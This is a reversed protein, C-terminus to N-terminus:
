KELNEILSERLRTKLENTNVAQNETDSIVFWDEAKEGVTTIRADHLRIKCNRLACGIRSLLGPSDKTTIHLESRHENLQVFQIETPTEFCRMRRNLFNNPQMPQVEERLMQERITDCILQSKEKNISQHDERNLFYMLVLTMGDNSAFIRAEMIDQKLKDLAHTIHAFLYDRDPMYMMLESAGRASKARVKILTQTKDAQYLEQTIRAVEQPSQRSFFASDAMSDWFRQYDAAKIERKSLHEKAKEQTQLAKMAKNKPINSTLELAKYTEHYLELFLSNKWDNWVDESTACVDAVTLLYLHNLHNQDGILKAFENIIQPDSLDKRQAVHSFELHHRVLWEIMEQDKKPLNHQKAFEAADIAGLVEHAGSRGKAIDHFLGALFLVEPRCIQKSIQHATPFEYAYEEVFFRRLNRIVLITHDDVTYAHFINFQMLGSIKKFVPLYSDLIGYSHMRRVSANVGSPQRFIEIFLARNIPDARFSDNIFHLHDRISRIANSRLGKIEPLNALAVFVELLATPNIEFVAPHTIDLYDNRICFRNNIPIIHNKGDEFLTERFHQLLIENLKAVSQVNRYYGSMFQEVAMKEPNDEYGFLEAIQQQYDFQLRDERRRRLHQLAFRIRNLYKNAAEMEVYEEISLFNRQVLEHLSKVRFYRKAVWNIMHIDRLGGPSEKINPELQYTTDQFRNHRQQQEETKASFFDKIPWFDKRAWLSILGQFAQYEGTIWRAELLNTATTVDKMGEEFCEDLTRIAHGVDFGLDWLLTIFASLPEQLQNPTETLVLLDIDSYPHLEGRGYGGVAILAADPDMIFHGWIKKLFQDVFTAREKILEAVPAGEEYQTFQYDTFRKIVNRGAKIKDKLPIEADNLANVFQPLSPRNLESM